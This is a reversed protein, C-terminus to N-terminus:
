IENHFWGVVKGLIRLGDADASVTRPKYNRNMSIIELENSLADFQLRKVLVEGALALVYIGDGEIRGRAFIVIDGPYINAEIMSDGKVEAATLVKKSIGKAMSALIDISRVELCDEPLEEEGIGASIKQSIFPITLIGTESNYYPTEADMPVDFGALWTPSVDLVKALKMLPTRKPEFRGSVYSSITSFNIGTKEALESQSMGRQILANKLRTAVKNENYETEMYEGGTKYIM